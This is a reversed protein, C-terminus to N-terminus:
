PLAIARPNLIKPFPQGETEEIDFEAFTAPFGQSGCESVLERFPEWATSFVQGETRPPGPEGIRQEWYKAPAICIIPVVLPSQEHPTSNEPIGDLDQWEKCLDGEHWAKRVAVAYALAECLMWLPIDGDEQKLELVVPFYDHSVGVLDIMGWGIDALEDQLPVQFSQIHRCVDPMFYRGQPKGENKRWQQWIANELLRERHRAQV